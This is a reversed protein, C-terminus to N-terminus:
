RLELFLATSILPWLLMMHDREGSLHQDLIKDVAGPVLWGLSQFRRSKLLDRCDGNLRPDRLWRDLPANFGTKVPNLRSCDPLIGRMARRLLMKTVGNEYKSTGPASLAAALCKPSAMPFVGKLGAAQSTLSESWLTPPSTEYSMEQFLRNSLFFPYPRPMPVPPAAAERAAVWGPDFWERVASYRRQDVRIEGTALSVNRRIWDDRVEPSKKFVPHDHLRIWAETERELTELDGAAKLDAFFVFFHEFEGALSEDGGLGSFLRSHGFQRARKALVHHALWTVTVIPAKLAEMLSKAEDLLDPATLDVRNLSWGTAKILAEVGSTEDYPSGSQDRYAMFWTELPRGLEKAALAAVSASDMGSSVTFGCSEGALAALRLRVSEALLDVYIRSAEEPAAAAMEPLFDLRLWRESRAGAESLVVASGAPVQRDGQHFTRGPDRFVHRYHTATFDYFTAEDLPPAGGIIEFLAPLSFAFAWGPGHPAYFLPTLGCADRVLTLADAAADHYALALDSELGNLLGPDRAISALLQSAGGAPPDFVLGRSALADVAGPERGPLYLGGDKLLQLTM